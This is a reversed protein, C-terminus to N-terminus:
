RLIKMVSLDVLCYFAFPHSHLKRTSFPLPHLQLRDLSCLMQTSTTRYQMVVLLERGYDRVREPDRLPDWEWLASCLLSLRRPVPGTGSVWCAECAAGLATNSSLGTWVSHKLCVPCCLLECGLFARVWARIWRPASRETNWVTMLCRFDLLAFFDGDCTGSPLKHRFPSCVMLGCPLVFSNM